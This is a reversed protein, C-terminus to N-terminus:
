SIPDWRSTYMGWHQLCMGLEHRPLEVPIRTAGPPIYHADRQGALCLVTAKTGLVACGIPTKVRYSLLFM